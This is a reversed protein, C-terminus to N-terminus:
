IVPQDSECDLIVRCLMAQSAYCDEHSRNQYHHINM